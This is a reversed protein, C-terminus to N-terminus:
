SSLSINVQHHNILKGPQSVSGVPYEGGILNKFLFGVILRSIRHTMVGKTALTLNANWISWWAFSAWGSKKNLRRGQKFTETWVDNERRCIEDVYISQLILKDGNQKSKQSCKLDSFTASASFTTWLLIWGQKSRATPESGATISSYQNPILISWNGLNLLVPFIGVWTFRSLPKYCCWSNM